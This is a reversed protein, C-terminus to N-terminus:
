QAAQWKATWQQTGADCKCEAPAAAAPTLTCSRQAVKANAYSGNRLNNLATNIAGATVGPDTRAGAISCHADGVGKVAATSIQATYNSVQTDKSGVGAAIFDSKTLDATTGFGLHLYAIVYHTRAASPNAGLRDWQMGDAQVLKFARVFGDYGGYRDYFNDFMAVESDYENIGPVGMRRHQMDAANLLTANNQSTGISTMVRYDMSNPFPSRHDAWWDTPWGPSVWGTWVNVAEHLTLLYGWFGPVNVTQGAANRYSSNNWFADGTVGIGEGFNSGTHAGGNPAEVQIHFPLGKAPMAFLTQLTTVVDDGYAFFKKIDNAHTAWVGPEVCWRTLSSKYAEVWVM